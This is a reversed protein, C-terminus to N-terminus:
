ISLASISMLGPFRCQITLEDQECVYRNNTVCYLINLQICQSRQNHHISTHIYSHFRIGRWKKKEGNENNNTLNKKSKEVISHRRIKDNANHLMLIPTHYRSPDMESKRTGETFSGYQIRNFYFWNWISILRKAIFIHVAFTFNNEITHNYRAWKALIIM